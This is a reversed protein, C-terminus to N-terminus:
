WIHSWYHLYGFLFEFMEATLESMKMHLQLQIDTVRHMFYQHFTELLWTVHWIFCRIHKPARSLGTSLKESRNTISTTFPAWLSSQISLVHTLDPFLGVPWRRFNFDIKNMPFVIHLRRKNNQVSVDVFVRSFLLFDLWRRVFAQSTMDVPTQMFTGNLKLSSFNYITFLTGLKRMKRHAMMTLRLKSSHGSCLVSEMISVRERSKWGNEFGCPSRVGKLKSM